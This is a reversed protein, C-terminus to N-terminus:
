HAAIKDVTFTPGTGDGDAPGYLREHRRIIAEDNAADSPSKLALKVAVGHLGPVKHGIPSLVNGPEVGPLAQVRALLDNEEDRQLRVIPVEQRDCWERYARYIHGRQSRYGPGQDLCEDVFRTFHEARAPAAADRAAQYEQRQRNEIERMRRTHRERALESAISAVQCIDAVEARLAAVEARLEALEGGQSPVPAPDAAVVQVAAVPVARVGVVPGAPIARAVAEQNVARSM